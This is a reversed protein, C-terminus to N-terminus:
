VPIQPKSWHKAESDLAEIRNGKAIPKQQSAENNKGDSAKEAKAEGNVSASM